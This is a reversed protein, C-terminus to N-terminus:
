FLWSRAEVPPQLDGRWRYYALAAHEYIVDRSTMLATYSPMFRIAGSAPLRRDLPSPVLLVPAGRPVGMQASIRPMQVTSAILAIPAEPWAEAIQQVRVVQAHTNWTAGDHHLATSPPMTVRLDDQLYNAGLLWVTEPAAIRMVQRARRRRGERNDGDFVVLTRTARIAERSPEPASPLSRVLRAAVVPTALVVYGAILLGALTFVTRRTRPSLWLAASGAILGTLLFGLSGPGGITKLVALLYSM